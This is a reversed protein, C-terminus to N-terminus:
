TATVCYNKNICKRYPIFSQLNYPLFSCTDFSLRDAAYKSEKLRIHM